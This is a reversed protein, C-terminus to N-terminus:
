SLDEQADDVLNEFDTVERDNREALEQVPTDAEWADYIERSPLLNTQRITDLYRQLYRAYTSM